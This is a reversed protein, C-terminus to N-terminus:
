KLFSIYQIIFVVANLKSVVNAHYFQCLYDSFMVKCVLTNLCLRYKEKPYEVATMAVYHEKFYLGVCITFM